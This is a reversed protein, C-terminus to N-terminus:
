RGSRPWARPLQDVVQVQAQHAGRPPHMKGPHEIVGMHSRRPYGGVPEIGHSGRVDAVIRGGRCPRRSCRPPPPRRSDPPRCRSPPPPRSGPERPGSGPRPRSGPNRGPRRRSGARALAGRGAQDPRRRGSGPDAKAQGPRGPANRRRAACCRSRGWPPRRGGAVDGEVHGPHRHGDGPGAQIGQRGAALHHDASGGPQIAPVSRPVATEPKTATAAAASGALAMASSISVLLARRSVPRPGWTGGGRAAARRPRPRWRLSRISRRCRM